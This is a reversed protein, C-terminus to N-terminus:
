CSMVYLRTYSLPYVMFSERLEYVLEEYSNELLIYYPGMFVHYDNGYEYNKLWMFKYLCAIVNFM